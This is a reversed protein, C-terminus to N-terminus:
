VKINQIINVSMYNNGTVSQRYNLNSMILCPIPDNQQTRSQAQFISFVLEFKKVNKKQPGNFPFDKIFKNGQM